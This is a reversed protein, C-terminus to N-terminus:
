EDEFDYVIPDRRSKWMEIARAFNGDDLMREFEEDQEARRGRVADL